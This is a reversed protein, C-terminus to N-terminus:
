LIKNAKILTSKEASVDVFIIQLWKDESATRCMGFPTGVTCSKGNNSGTRNRNIQVHTKKRKEKEIM